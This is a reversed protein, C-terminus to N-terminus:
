YATRAVRFGNYSDRYDAGSGYRSAARIHKANLYWAGGRTARRGCDGTIWASGDTPAGQYSDNWCDEVWDWVNGHVNYLGWPNAAFSDIPVTGKREEGRPGGAKRVM